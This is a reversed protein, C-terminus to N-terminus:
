LSLPCFLRQGVCAWAFGHAHCGARPRLVGSLLRNSENLMKHMAIETCKLSHSANCFPTDANCCIGDANCTKTKSQLATTKPQICRHFTAASLSLWNMGPM